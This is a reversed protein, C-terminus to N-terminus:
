GLETSYNNCGRGRGGPPRSRGDEWGAILSTRAPLQEALADRTLGAARRAATFARAFAPYKGSPGGRGAPRHPAPPPTAGAVRDLEDAPWDLLTALRRRARDEPVRGSRWRSVAAPSMEIAAAVDQWLKGHVGCWTALALPLEGVHWQTADPLRDVDEPSPTFAPRATPPPYL